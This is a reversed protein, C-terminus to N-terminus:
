SSETRLAVCEDIFGRLAGDYAQGAQMFDNHGVAGLDFFEKPEAAGDFLRRGMSFPILEDGTAHLFLKPRRLTRVRSLSDFQNRVLWRLPLWPVKLRAMEHGNTFTSQAVVGACSVRTALEIAVAGGLSKGFLVIREPPVRKEEVLFRYAADADKYLGSESPRGQSKGYGRYDVCLVNTPLLSLRELFERRYTVNGANGHFYLVHDDSDARLYWGHLRVGDSAAFVCEEAAPFDWDGDPFRSPFYIWRDELM